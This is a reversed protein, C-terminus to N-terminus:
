LTNLFGDLAKHFEAPKDLHLSVDGAFSHAFSHIFLV